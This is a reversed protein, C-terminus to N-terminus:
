EKRRTDVVLMIAATEGINFACTWARQNIWTVLGHGLHASEIGSYHMVAPNTRLAVILRNYREWYDGSAAPVGAPWTGPPIMELYIRGFEVGGTQDGVRKIRAILSQLEPWKRVDTLQRYTADDDPDDAGARPGRVWLEGAKFLGARRPLSAILEHPDIYALPVINAM